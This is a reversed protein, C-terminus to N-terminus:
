NLHSKSVGTIYLLNTPMFRARLKWEPLLQKTMVEVKKM